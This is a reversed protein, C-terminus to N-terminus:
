GADGPPLDAAEPTPPWVGGEGALGAPLVVPAEGEPRRYLVGLGFREGRAAEVANAFSSADYSEPLLDCRLSTADARHSGAAGIRLIGSRRRIEPSGGRLPDSGPAPVPWM